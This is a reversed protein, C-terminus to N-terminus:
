LLANREDGFPGETTDGESSLPFRRPSNHRLGGEPGIEVLLPARQRPTPSTLNSDLPPPPDTTAIQRLCSSTTM